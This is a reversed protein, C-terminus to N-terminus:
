LLDGFYWVASDGAPSKLKVGYKERKTITPNCNQRQADSCGSHCFSRGLGLPISERPYLTIDFKVIHVPYDFHIHIQYPDLEGFYIQSM